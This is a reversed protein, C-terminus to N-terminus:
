EGIKEVKKFKIGNIIISDFQEIDKESDFCININNQKLIIDDCNMELTKLEVNHIKDQKIADELKDM